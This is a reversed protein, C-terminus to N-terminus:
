NSTGSELYRERPIAYLVLEIRDLVLGRFPPNWTSPYKRLAFVYDNINSKIWTFLEILDEKKHYACISLVPRNRQITDCATRLVSLEAGEIDMSIISIKEDAYLRDITCNGEGLFYRDLQIKQTVSKGLMEINRKLKTYEEESAEVAIIKEYPNNCKLYQFITDGRAAGVNLLVEKESLTFLQKNKDDIGWYKYEEPFTVGSYKEGLIITRLYYIMTEKSMSDALWNYTREFLDVNEKIYHYWDIDYPDMIWKSDCIVYQGDKGATQIVEDIEKKTSQDEYYAYISVVVFFKKMSTRMFDKSSIVPVGDLFATHPQRAVICDPVIGYMRKMWSLMFGGCQGAGYIVCKAGYQKMVPLMEMEDYRGYVTPALDFLEKIM